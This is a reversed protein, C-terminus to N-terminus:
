AHRFSLGFLEVYVTVDGALNTAFVRGDAMVNIVATNNNSLALMDCSDHAPRYGVPLTFAVSGSAGSKMVGALWVRENARYFGVSRGPPNSPAALSNDYNVWSNTFAPAIPDSADGVYHVPDIAPNELREVRRVLDWYQSVDDDQLRPKV